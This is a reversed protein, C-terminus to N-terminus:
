FSWRLGLVPLVPLGVIAGRESYDASYIYEETNKQNTVNQVELSLDLHSTRIDFRKSVRLDAQFFTPLRLQNHAGFIPQYLDRRSDYFAGVVETRPYGTSVRLRVGAELGFPLEYGALATFVHRQDYDSPRWGLGPADQRQAWSLTYSIWGYVGRTKDLRVMLQGGWTRGRGSAVVAEALAPQEAQSRMALERATTYFATLDVSLTPIPRVGGGIVHHLASAAPLAPNGFSASLDSASPAQGYLGAAATVYGLETPAFRLAFRPELQIDQQFLGRTPSIGIQPSARSVSRAYPDLRLGPTVHLRDDLLAVDAELYPAVQALLVDYQDANIQDPPPQGFARIDGERPPSALSGERVVRVRSLETDLGAEVTLFDAVRARHSARLGFMVTRTSVRTRVPGYRQEQDAQDAGGFLV